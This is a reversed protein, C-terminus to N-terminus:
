GHNGRKWRIHACTEILPMAAAGIEDKEEETFTEFCEKEFALWEDDTKLTKLRETFESRTM